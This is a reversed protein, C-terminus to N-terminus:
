SATKLSSVGTTIDSIDDDAKETATDNDHTDSQKIDQAATFDEEPEEGQPDRVSAGSGSATPPFATHTPEDESEVDGAAGSDNEEVDEKHKQSQTNSIGATRKVKPPSADKQGSSAGGM